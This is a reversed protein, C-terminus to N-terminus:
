LCVAAFAGPSHRLSHTLSSCALSPENGAPTSCLPNGIKIEPRRDFGINWGGMLAAAKEKMAWKDFHFIAWSATKRGMDAAILKFRCLFTFYNMLNLPIMLIIYSPASESIYLWSSKEYWKWRTGSKTTVFFSIFYLFFFANECKEQLKV